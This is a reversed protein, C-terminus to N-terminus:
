KRVLKNVRNKKRKWEDWDENSNSSKARIKQEDRDKMLEKVERSLKRGRNKRTKLNRLKIPAIRNLPTCIKDTISAAIVTTDELNYIESWNLGFLEM